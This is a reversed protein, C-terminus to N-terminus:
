MYVCMLSYACIHLGNKPISIYFIKYKLPTVLTCMHVRQHLTTFIAKEVYERSIPPNYYISSAIPPITHLTYTRDSNVAFKNNKLFNSPSYTRRINYKNNNKSIPNRKKIPNKHLIKSGRFKLRNAHCITKLLIVLNNM